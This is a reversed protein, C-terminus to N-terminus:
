GYYQSRINDVYEKLKDKDAKAVKFYPHSKGFIRGCKAVSESFIDDIQEPKEPVEVSAKVDKIKDKEAIIDGGDSM